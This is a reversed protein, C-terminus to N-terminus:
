IIKPILMPLLIPVRYLLTYSLLILEQDNFTERIIGHEIEDPSYEVGAVKGIKAKWVSGRSSLDKISSIGPNDAVAKLLLFNYSNIWLALQKPLTYQEFSPLNALEIGLAKFTPDEQLGEYNVLAAKIGAVEGDTVYKQLVSSFKETWDDAIDACILLPFCLFSFCLMKLM